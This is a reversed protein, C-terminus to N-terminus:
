THQLDQYWHYINASPRCSEKTNQHKRTIKFSQEAARQIALATWVCRRQIWVRFSVFQKRAGSANSKKKEHFVSQIGGIGGELRGALNPVILVNASQCRGTPTSQVSISLSRPFTPNPRRDPRNTISHKQKWDLVWGSESTFPLWVKVHTMRRDFHKMADGTLNHVVDVINWCLLVGLCSQGPWPHRRFNGQSPKTVLQAMAPHLASDIQNRLEQQQRWPLQQRFAQCDYAIVM